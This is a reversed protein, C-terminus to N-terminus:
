SPSFQLASFTFFKELKMSSTPPLALSSGLDLELQILHDKMHIVCSEEFM